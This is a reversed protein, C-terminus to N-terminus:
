DATQKLNLNLSGSSAKSSSHNHIDEFTLANTELRNAESNQGTIAAGKLHVNDANVNYHDEAFLGAQELVQHYETTGKAAQAGVSAGWASGFGGEM